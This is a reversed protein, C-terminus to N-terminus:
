IFFPAVSSKGYGWGLDELGVPAQDDRHHPWLLSLACSVLELRSRGATRLDHMVADGSGEGDANGQRLVPYVLLDEQARFPESMSRNAERRGGGLGSHTGGHM